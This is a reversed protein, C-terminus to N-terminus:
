ATGGLVRFEIRRNLKRGADTGNQAIPQTEGYGVARLMQADVGHRVMHKAVADARRQSLRLNMERRISRNFGLRAGLVVM